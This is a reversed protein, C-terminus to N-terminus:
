LEKPIVLIAGGDSTFPHCSGGPLYTILGGRGPPVTALTNGYGDYHAPEWQDSGRSPVQIIEGCLNMPGVEATWGTVSFCAAGCCKFFVRWKFTGSGYADDDTEFVYENCGASTYTLSRARVASPLLLALVILCLYRKM